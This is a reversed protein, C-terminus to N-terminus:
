LFIGFHMIFFCMSLAIHLYRLSIFLKPNGGYNQPKKKRKRNMASLAEHVIWFIKNLFLFLFSPFTSPCESFRASYVQVEMWISQEGLGQYSFFVTRLSSLFFSHRRLSVCRLFCLHTFLLFCGVDAEQPQSSPKNKKGKGGVAQRKTVEGSGPVELLPPTYTPDSLPLSFIMLWNQTKSTKISFPQVSAFSSLSSQPNDTVKLSWQKEM